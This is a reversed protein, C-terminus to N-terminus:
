EIQKQEKLALVDPMIGKVILITEIRVLRRDVDNFKGNMWAVSGLIASLVIVTDVHKKMWEMNRRFQTNTLLNAIEEM